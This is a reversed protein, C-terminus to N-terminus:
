EGWLPSPYVGREVLEGIGTKVWAKDEPHTVGLWREQTPLVRVRAKGEALLEGVVEPLLFEAKPDDGAEHLFDPFRSDLEAFLSPTFGWMNMSVPSGEPIEIWTRDDESYCVRDSLRKVKHREDIEKLFGDADVSCVGRTVHGHQTLTKELVYGVMCYDYADSTDKAGRLRDALVAFSSRGYFDDANIVAFPGDVAERCCLVAHATGWPKERNSPVSFGPPLDGLGQIVYETPCRAEIRRGVAERFAAEIERRLIFVVKGFGVTLADYLSYDILIEGHPGIPDIQKLGGYRSGIGAAMVVLTPQPM